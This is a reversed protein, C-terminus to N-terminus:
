HCAYWNICLQYFLILKLSCYEWQIRNTHEPLLILAIKDHTYMVQLLFRSNKSQVETTWFKIIGKSCTSNYPCFCVCYVESLYSVAKAGFSSTPGNLRSKDVKTALPNGPDLAPLSIDESDKM